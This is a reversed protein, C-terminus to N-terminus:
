LDKGKLEKCPSSSRGRKKLREGKLEGSTGKESLMPSKLRLELVSSVSFPDNTETLLALIDFVDKLDGAYLPLPGGAEIGSIDMALGGSGANSGAAYRRLM